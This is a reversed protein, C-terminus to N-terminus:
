PSGASHSWVNALIWVLLPAVVAPTSWTVMFPNEMSHTAFMMASRGLSGPWHPVAAVARYVAAGERAVPAQYPHRETTMQM